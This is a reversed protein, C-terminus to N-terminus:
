SAAGHRGNLREWGASVAEDAMLELVGASNGSLEAETYLARAERSGHRQGFAEIRDFGIEAADSARRGGEAGALQAGRRLKGVGPEDREIPMIDLPQGGPPDEAILDVRNGARIDARFDVRGGRRREVGEAVGHRVFVARRAAKDGGSAAFRALAAGAIFPADNPATVLRWLRHALFRTEHKPRHLLPHRREAEAPRVHSRGLDIRDEVDIREQGVLDDAASGARAAQGPM